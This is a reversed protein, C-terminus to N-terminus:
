NGSLISFTSSQLSTKMNNSLSLSPTREKVSHTVARWVMPYLIDPGRGAMPAYELSKQFFSGKKGIQIPNKPPFNYRNTSTNKAFVGM